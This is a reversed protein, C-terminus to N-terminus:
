EANSEQPRRKKLLYFLLLSIGLAIIIGIIGNVIDGIIGLGSVGLPAFLPHFEGLGFDELVRELGDPGVWSLLPIMIAAICIIIMLILFFYKHTKIWNKM